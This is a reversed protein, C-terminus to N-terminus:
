KVIEPEQDRDQERNRDRASTSSPGRKFTTTVLIWEANTFFEHAKNNGNLCDARITHKRQVRRGDRAGCTGVARSPHGGTKPRQGKPASESCDLDELHDDDNNDDM